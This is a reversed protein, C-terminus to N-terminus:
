RPDQLLHRDFQLHRLHQLCPVMLRPSLQVYLSHLPRRCSWLRYQQSDNSGKCAPSQEDPLDRLGKNRVKMRKTRTTMDFM